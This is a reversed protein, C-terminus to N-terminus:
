GGLLLHTSSQHNYTLQTLEDPLDNLTQFLQYRQQIPTVKHPQSVLILYYMYSCLKTDPMAEGAM